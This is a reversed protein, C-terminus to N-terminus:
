YEQRFCAPIDQPSFWARELTTTADGSTAVHHNNTYTQQFQAAALTIQKSHEHGPIDRADKVELVERVNVLRKKELLIEIVKNQLSEITQLCEIANDLKSEEEFADLAEQLATLAKLFANEEGNLISKFKKAAKHLLLVMEDGKQFIYTNILQVEWAKPLM